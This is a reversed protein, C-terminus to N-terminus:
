YVCLSHRSVVDWHTSQQICLSPLTHTSYDREGTSYGAMQEGM